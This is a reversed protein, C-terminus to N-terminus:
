GWAGAQRRQMLGELGRHAPVVGVQVCEGGVVAGFVAGGEVVQGEAVLVVGGDGIHESGASFQAIAGVEAVVPAVADREFEDGVGSLVPGVGVAGVAGSGARGFVGAAGAAPRGDFGCEGGRGVGVADFVVGPESEVAGCDEIRGGEVAVVGVFS